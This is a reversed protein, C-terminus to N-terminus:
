HSMEAAAPVAARSTASMANALTSLRLVVDFLGQAVSHYTYPTINESQRALATYGALDLAPGQSRVKALWEAFQSQSVADYSFHMGSFGDGSFQASLGFYSGPKDAELNLQTTMGPMAYIQSGLQPVFFSNMVTASTLQFHVPVGAPVVL